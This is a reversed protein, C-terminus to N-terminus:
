DIFYIKMSKPTKQKMIPTIPIIRGRIGVVGRNRSVRIQKALDEGLSSFLNM